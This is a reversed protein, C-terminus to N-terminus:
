EEILNQDSEEDIHLPRQDMCYNVKNLLNEIKCILIM